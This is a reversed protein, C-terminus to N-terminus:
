FTITVMAFVFEEDTAAGADHLYTGTFFHSYGVLASVHRQIQWNVAFDCESGLVSSHSHTDLPEVAESSLNYATDNTNQRWFFHQALSVEVDKTPWVALEPHLDILNERGFIYMHGLYMYQPPFLQNFRHRPDASGSALDVGVSLRTPAALDALTYGGEAAVAYANVHSSSYKGFQYDPEVDFDFPGPTSHLRTGLTYTNDDVPNESSDFKDLELLYLDLKTGTEPPLDPLETVNYLGGFYTHDDDGNLRNKDIIVPRVAFAELTDNPLHLSAKVGDFSLRENRWDNPSM